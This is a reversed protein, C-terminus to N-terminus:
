VDDGQWQRFEWHCRTLRDLSWRDSCYFLDYMFSEFWDSQTLKKEEDTHHLHSWNGCALEDFLVNASKRNIGLQDCVHFFIEKWDNVINSIYVYNGNQYKDFFEMCESCIARTMGHDLFWDRVEEPCRYPIVKYMYSCLKHFWIHKIM